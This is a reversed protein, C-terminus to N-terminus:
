SDAYMDSIAQAYHKYVVNRKIKLTPTLEGNEMSFPEALITFRKIMEYNAISVQAQEIHAHLLRRIEHDQALEATSRETNLGREHAEKKLIDWNPFILASIFKYGDGIVAVQEFIPDLMLLGEIMQPAVYKGNATKFLDKIRETFYLTKGELRGADGTRFYGDETFSERNAEPNNYYETIITPGKLQIENTEPDIRVQVHDLVTGVSNIDFHKDPYCCVTATSESLGYGCCIPISVSQLFRNIEPSLAAGAVPFFKGRQIGLVKKLKAFLTAKYLKYLLKLYLPARKGQNKYDLRYEEGVKIAHRMIKQLTPPMSKIKDQVGGYVKEWFRPVSCMMTPHIDVLATQITKPNTLIAVTAGIFLCYYVWIKEFIHSQPLFSMSIDKSSLNTLLDAHTQVQMMFQKHKLAVGKSRGSTGSTYIIVAIDDPLAQSSRTNAIHEHSKSNGRRIFEEYKLSITDEPHLLVNPELVIIRRLLGTRKQVEWANNYQYQEWVFLVEIGADRLIFEVQDPSSTAYLPVSTGRVMFLGIESSLADVSNQTYFGVREGEKINEAVLAKAALLCRESFEEGNLNYWPGNDKKQYRIIRKSGFKKRLRHPYEALHYLQKNM